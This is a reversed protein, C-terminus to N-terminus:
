SEKKESQNIPVRERNSNYILECNEFNQSKTQLCFVWVNQNCLFSINSKDFTFM